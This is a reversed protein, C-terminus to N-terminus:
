NTTWSVSDCITGSPGNGCADVSTTAAPPLNINFSFIHDDSTHVGQSVGNVRLEIQALNSYVRATM